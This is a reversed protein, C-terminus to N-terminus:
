MFPAPRDKTMRPNKVVAVRPQRAEPRGDAKHGFSHVDAETVVEDIRGSAAGIAVHM